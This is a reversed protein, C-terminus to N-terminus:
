CGHEGIHQDLAVRAAEARKLAVEIFTRMQDYKGKPLVGTSTRLTNFMRTHVETASAYEDM